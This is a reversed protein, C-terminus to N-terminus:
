YRFSLITKLKLFKQGHSYTKYSNSDVLQRESASLIPYPTNYYQLSCIFDHPKQSQSILVARKRLCLPHLQKCVCNCCWRRNVLKLNTQKAQVIKMLGTTCSPIQNTCNESLLWIHHCSKKSTLSRKINCEFGTGAKLSEPMVTKIALDKNSEQLNTLIFRIPYLM